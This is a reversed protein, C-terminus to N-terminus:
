CGDTPPRWRVCWGPSRGPSARPHYRPLISARDAPAAARYVVVQPARTVRVFRSIFEPAVRTEIAEAIARDAVGSPAQALIQQVQVSRRQLSDRLSTRLYQELGYCMATGVLAFTASLLLAYWVALRFALSRHNM